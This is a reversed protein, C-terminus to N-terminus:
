GNEDGKIRIEYSLSEYEITVASRSIRLIRIKGLIQDGESVMHFEGSVNLLASKRSEKSVFGEYSVSQYIEEAISKQLAAAQAPPPAQNGPRSADAAATDGVFVDRKVTFPPAKKKLKGAHLLEGRAPMAALLFLVLLAASRNAL